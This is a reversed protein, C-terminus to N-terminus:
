YRAEFCGGNRGGSELAISILCLGGVDQLGKGPSSVDVRLILKTVLGLEDRFMFGICM